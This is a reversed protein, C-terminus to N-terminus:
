AIRRDALLGCPNGTAPRPELVQGGHIHGGVPGLRGKAFGQGNPGLDADHGEAARGALDGQHVADEDILAAPDSGCRKRCASLKQMSSGPGSAM